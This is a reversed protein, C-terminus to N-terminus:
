LMLRGDRLRVIRDAYASAMELNHTVMIVTHNGMRNLEKLLKMVEHGTKSDLNGTPEDALILPPDNALARAIAVRQQEGGSLEVPRHHVRESLGIRKLLDMARERRKSAPVGAFILPLEVNQLATMTPILNFTQFVFGVSQRRYSALGNEDLTTIDVGNVLVQGRVPHDLGGILSLLTSKGSGSPGVVCLFEGEEVELNVGQLAKVVAHGMRFEQTLDVTRVILSM